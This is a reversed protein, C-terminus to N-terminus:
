AFSFVPRHCEAFIFIPSISTFKSNYVHHNKLISLYFILYLQDVEYIQMVEPVTTLLMDLTLQILPTAVPPTKPTLVGGM